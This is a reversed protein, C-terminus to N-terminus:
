EYSQWRATDDGDLITRLRHALQRAVDPRGDIADIVSTVLQLERTQRLLHWGHRWATFDFGYADALARYMAPDQGFRAPGLAAPALDWERPGLSASDLDCIVLHGHPHHLLNGIRADGHIVGPTLQWTTEALQQALQAAWGDLRALLTPLDIGVATRAWDRTQDLQRHPLQGVQNIRRRAEGVTDWKPLPVDLREIAHIRRLPEALDVPRHQPRPPQPFYTWFTAVWGNTAIPQPIDPLLRVTPMDLAAFAKAVQVVKGARTAAHQGHGLRVVAATTALRYVANITYKILDAGTSDLGARSCVEHLGARLHADTQPTLTTAM